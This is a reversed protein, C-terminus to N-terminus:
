QLDQPGIQRLAAASRLRVYPNPDHRRLEELAHIVRETSSGAAIVARLDQPTADAATGASDADPGALSVQELSHVLLNVAEIRVGPNADHNLAELLVERVSPDSTAERLAELAKMRVGPNQDKRAAALLARRVDADSTHSKLADLCDLRVSPDFRQGNAVVYTLVRRVDADDLNGSIVLPQEAQMQVQVTATDPDSSPGSFNIGAVSMKSLQDETIKPAALVNVATGGSGSGSTPLWQWVQRGLVAGLVLLLAASWAPRLAMWRRLGGFPQWHEQVPPASLDDLAESLESRYQALLKGSGDLQDAAQPVNVLANGFEEEENLQARCEACGALHAEIQRREEVTVEDCSYFILLPAVDACRRLDGPQSSM